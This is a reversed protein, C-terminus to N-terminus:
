HLSSFTLDPKFQVCYGDPVEAASKATKLTAPLSRPLLYEYHLSDTTAKLHDKPLGVIREPRKRVGTADCEWSLALWILNEQEFADSFHIDGTDDFAVCVKFLEM